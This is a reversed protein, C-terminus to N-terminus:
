PPARGIIDCVPQVNWPGVIGVVFGGEEEESICGWFIAHTKATSDIQTM